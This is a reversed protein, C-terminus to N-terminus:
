DAARKYWYAAKVDSHKVGRGFEFCQGFKYQATLDGKNKAALDFRRAAEINCQVVGRGTALM